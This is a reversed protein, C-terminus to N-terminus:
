VGTAESLLVKYIHLHNLEKIILPLESQSLISVTANSNYYTYGNIAFFLARSISYGEISTHFHLIDGEVIVASTGQVDMCSNVAPITTLVYSALHVDYEVSFEM